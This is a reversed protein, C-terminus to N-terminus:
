MTDKEFCSYHTTTKHTRKPPTHTHTHAHAHTHTNKAITGRKTSVHIPLFQQGDSKQWIRENM